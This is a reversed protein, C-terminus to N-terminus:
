SSLSASTNHNNNQGLFSKMWKPRHEEALSLYYATTYKELTKASRLGLFDIFFKMPIQYEKMMHTIVRGLEIQLHAKNNGRRRDMYNFYVAFQDFLGLMLNPSRTVIEYDPDEYVTSRNIVKEVFYHSKDNHKFSFHDKYDHISECYIANGCVFCKCGYGSYWYGISFALKLEPTERLGSERLFLIFESDKHKVITTGDDNNNDVM